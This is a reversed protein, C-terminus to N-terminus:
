FTLTTVHTSHKRDNQKSGNWSLVTIQSALVQSVICSATHGRSKLWVLDPQMNTSEDYTITRASENGTYLKIRFNDTSKNTSSYAM